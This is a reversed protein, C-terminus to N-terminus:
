FKEQPILNDIADIATIVILNPDVTPAVYSTVADYINESIVKRKKICRLKFVANIPM